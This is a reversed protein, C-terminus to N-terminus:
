RCYKNYAEGSLPVKNEFAIRLDSCPNLKLKMKAGARWYFADYYSPNYQLCTNLDAVSQRYNGIRGFAIGRRFYLDAEIPNIAIANNYQEIAEDLRNIDSYCNGLVFYARSNKPDLELAKKADDMAKSIDGAMYYAAAKGAYAKPYKHLELAKNFNAIAKGSMGKKLFLLGRNYFGKYNGPAVETAKNFYRLANNDDNMFMREVGASNLAVFENPFKKLIDEFLVISSEWKGIRAFTLVGLILLIASLIWVSNRATHILKGALIGFGTVAVYMYRDAYLVEGFPIFQLVLILNVLIFAIVTVLEYKKNKLLFIIIGLLIVIFIYGIVVARMNEPHSYITSLGTPLIFLQLYKLLAFGAYGIREHIPFQHSYNIFMDAAQTKLNIIGFLVSLALFPLKELVDKWRIRRNIIMDICLLTIPFIVVSSKCLCGLIFLLLCIIYGSLKGSRKYHNYSILGSFYFTTSIINKLESIWGVSEVQLPHLLFICAATIGVLDKNFLKKVTTYVLYGNFLHFIINVLHHGWDNSEFIWWNLAHITMTLPIYNGVFHGTWLSKLDFEHVARNRFVMEPDDWSIHGYFLFRSYVVAAAIASLILLLNNESFKNSITRV